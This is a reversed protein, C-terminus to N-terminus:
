FNIGNEKNIFVTTTNITRHTFTAFSVNLLPLKKFIVTYFSDFSNKFSQKFSNIQKFCGVYHIVNNWLKSKKVNKMWMSEVTKEVSKNM